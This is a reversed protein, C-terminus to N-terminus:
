FSKKIQFIPKLMKIFQQLIHLLKYHTIYEGGGGRAEQSNITAKQMSYM